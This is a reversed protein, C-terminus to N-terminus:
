QATAPAPADEPTPPEAAAVPPGPSHAIDFTGIRKLWRPLRDDDDLVTSAIAVISTMGGCIVAADISRRGAPTWYDDSLDMWLAFEDLTLASCIGYMTATVRSGWQPPRDHGTYAQQTWLFGIGLLGLIGPTSHHLHRGGVSMNGFPGVGDKISHTVLRCAAFAATFGVSSLLAREAQPEHAFRRQYSGRLPM